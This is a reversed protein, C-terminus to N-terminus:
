FLPIFVIKQESLIALQLLLNLRSLGQKFIPGHNVTIILM